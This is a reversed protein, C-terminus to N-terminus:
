DDFSYDNSGDSLLCDCATLFCWMAEPDHLGFFDLDPGLDDETEFNVYESTGLLERYM